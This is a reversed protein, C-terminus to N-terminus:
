RPPGAFDGPGPGAVVDVPASNAPEAPVKGMGMTRMVQATIAPISPMQSAPPRGLSAAATDQNRITAHHEHNYIAVILGIAGAIAAKVAGQLNTDTIGLVGLVLTVWSMWWAPNTWQFM